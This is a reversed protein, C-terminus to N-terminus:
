GFSGFVELYGAYPNVSRYPLQRTEHGVETSADFVLPVARWIRPLELM